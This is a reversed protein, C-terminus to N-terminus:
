RTLGGAPRLYSLAVIIVFLIGKIGDIIYVNAGMLTLGNTLVTITIAGIIASRMKSTAGGSLPMGGLVLAIMVNLQIGGGSGSTVSCLRSFQLFSALGLCIGTIIFAIVKYKGVNIGSQAVAVPNGGIGKQIKGIKTREFLLIALIIMVALVGFRIGTSNYAELFHFDIRVDTKSTVSTLIGTCAFSMCLTVVFVPVKMVVHVIASISCLVSCTVLTLVLILLPHIQYNFVLIVEAALLQSVGCISGLSMDMGGHAYIFIAGLSVLLTTFIQDILNSLNTPTLNRGQTGIIFFVIVFVLGAFPLITKVLQNKRANKKSIEDQLADATMAKTKEM